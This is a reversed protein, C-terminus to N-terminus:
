LKDCRAPVFGLKNSELDYIIHMNQQQFNGIITMDSEGSSSIPVCLGDEFDLVYSERPLDWDAGELHLIVKPITPVKQNPSTSFCLLEAGDITTGDLVTLPVQKALEDRLTQFVARPFTTIGMGSDIITGGSGDGKLVFVSPDLMLRTKGVTIGKLSLYYQSSNPGEPSPAFPTYQIPGTAQAELNDPTGLFMPSTKYEGTITFCHSFKNVKLQSPLSMLGRGFGAIGSENSKFIGKNYMGCGFRLSPVAVGDVKGGPAQFTFTDEYIKGTTISNGPYSYAYFCLNDKVGCGSFPLGGRTCVPDFCSVGRQTGSTSTDIARFPQDFCVACACQTWILDSGTDLTLAVRQPRPTGIGFHILYESNPVDVDRSGSATVAYDSTGGRGRGPPSWRKNVRNRTRVAMRHLLDRKTFGRTSDVHTLHARVAVHCTASWAFLVTLFLVYLLLQLVSMAKM